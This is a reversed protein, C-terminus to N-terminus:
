PNETHRTGPGLWNWASTTQPDLVNEPVVRLTAQQVTQLCIIELVLLVIQIAVIGHLVTSVSLCQITNHCFFLIFIGFTPTSISFILALTLFAALYNSERRMFESFGFLIWLNDIFENFFGMCSIFYFFYPFFFEIFIHCFMDYMHQLM